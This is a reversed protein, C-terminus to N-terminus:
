PTRRAYRALFKAIPCASIFSNNLRGPALHGSFRFAIGRIEFAPLAQTEHESQTYELLSTTNEDDLFYPCIPSNSINNKINNYM